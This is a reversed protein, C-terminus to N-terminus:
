IQSQLIYELSLVKPASTINALYKSRERLTKNVRDLLHLVPFHKKQEGCIEYRFPFALTALM